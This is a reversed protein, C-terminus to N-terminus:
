SSRGNKIEKKINIKTVSDSRFVCIHRGESSYIQEIVIMARIQNIMMVLDEHSGADISFLRGAYPNFGEQFIDGPM